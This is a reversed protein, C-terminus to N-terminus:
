EQADTKPLHSNPDQNMLTNLGYQPVYLQTQSLSAPSRTLKTSVHPNQDLFGASSASFSCIM